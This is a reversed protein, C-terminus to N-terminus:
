IIRKANRDIKLLFIKKSDNKINFLILLAEHILSYTLSHSILFPITFVCSIFGTEDM